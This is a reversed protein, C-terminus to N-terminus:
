STSIIVSDCDQDPLYLIQIQSGPDWRRAIVPLVQDHDRFLRGGVDFESRVRTLKIEFGISEDAMDLVRATAPLGNVLFPKLRRRRARWTSWVVAPLIGATVISFFGVLVVDTVGWGGRAKETSAMIRGPSYSVAKLLQKVDGQLPRPTPGLALSNAVHPVLSSGSSAGSLLATRAARASAFRSTPSGALLRALVTRLPEGCPLTPPVVLQGADNMFEPPARGTCLHLFTAALAYLDSAPTAQGMSQEYPMYGYTGVMTSGSEDPSHFVNRVAGFDVLAPSGDPRVIINAPKIDRHLISPVRTHLYDLLGLMDLFLQLVQTGDLHQSQGIMAALSMGEVYEMVLCAVEAGEWHTRLTDYVAPIGPHRLSRLVTAEREFLEFSKWDQAVRPHLVKIAVQRESQTDRALLTHAFAGRGLPRIVQYRDAILTANM